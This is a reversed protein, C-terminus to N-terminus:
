ATPPPGVSVTNPGTSASATYSFTPEFRKLAAPTVSAYSGQEAYLQQVTGTAQQVTMKADVDKASGIQAVATHEDSAIQEGGGKVFTMFGAIAVVAVIGGVVLLVIRGTGSGASRGAPRRPKPTRARTIVHKGSPKGLTFSDDMGDWTDACAQRGSGPEGGDGSQSWRALRSRAYWREMLSIASTRAAISDRDAFPSRM